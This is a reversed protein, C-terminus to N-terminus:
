PKAKYALHEPPAEWGHSGLIFRTLPFYGEDNDRFFQVDYDSREPDRSLVKGYLNATM